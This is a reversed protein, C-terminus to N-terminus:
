FLAFAGVTRNGVEPVFTGSIPCFNLTDCRRVITLSRHYVRVYGRVAVFRSLPSLRQGAGRRDLLGAVDGDVASRLLRSHRLALSRSRAGNLPASGVRFSREDVDRACEGNWIFGSSFGSGFGHSIASPTLAAQRSRNVWLLAVGQRSVRVVRHALSCLSSSCGSLVRVVRRAHSCVAGACM